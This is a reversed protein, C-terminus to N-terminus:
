GVVFEARLVGNAATAVVLIHNVDVAHFHEARQEDAGALLLPQAEDVGIQRLLYLKRGAAELRAIAILHAGHEVDSILPGLSPLARGREAHQGGRMGREARGVGIHAAGAFAECLDRADTVAHGARQEAVGVRPGFVLRPEDIQLRKHSVARCRFPLHVEEAVDSRVM